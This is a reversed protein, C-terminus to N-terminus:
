QVALSFWPVSFSDVWFSYKRKEVSLWEWHCSSLWQCVRLLRQVDAYWALFLLSSRVQLSLYNEQSSPKINRRKIRKCFWLYCSRRHHRQFISRSWTRGLRDLSATIRRANKRNKSNFWWYKMLKFSGVDKITANKLIEKLKYRRKLFIKRAKLEKNQFIFNIM